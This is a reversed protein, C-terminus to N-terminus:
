TVFADSWTQRDATDNSAGLFWYNRSHGGRFRRGVKHSVVLCDAASLPSDTETGATVSTDAGFAATSSSLDTCEVSTLSCASPTHAKLGSSSWLEVVDTAFEALDANSPATGAYRKFFRVKAGLDESITFKMDIRIVKDVDPLAPMFGESISAQCLTM